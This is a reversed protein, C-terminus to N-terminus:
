LRLQSYNPLYVRVYLSMLVVFKMSVPLSDSDARAAKFMFDHTATDKFGKMNLPMIGVGALFLVSLM